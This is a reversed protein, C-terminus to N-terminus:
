ETDYSLVERLPEMIPFQSLLLQYRDWAKHRNWTVIQRMLWARKLLYPHEVELDWLNLRKDEWEWPHLYLVIPLEVSRLRLLLRYFWKPYARLYFGGAIMFRYGLFRTISMPVEVMGNILRHPQEPADIVGYAFNKVPCISSDYLFGQAALEDLAWFTKETISFMPARYGIVKVGAIDELTQKSRKVDERFQDRTQNLIASHSNGHSALEHGESLIRYIEERLTEAVCGLMFFTARIKRRSFEDLLKNLNTRLNSPLNYRARLIEGDPVYHYYDEVDISLYAQSPRPLTEAILNQYRM